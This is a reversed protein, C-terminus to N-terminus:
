DAVLLIAYSYFAEVTVFKQLSNKRLFGVVTKIAFNGRLCVGHVGSDMSWHYIKPIKSCLHPVRFYKSSRFFYEHHMRTCFYILIAIEFPRMLGSGHFRWCHYNELIGFMYDHAENLPERCDFKLIVALYQWKLTLYSLRRVSEFMRSIHHQSMEDSSSNNLASVTSIYRHINWLYYTYIHCVLVRYGGSGLIRCIAHMGSFNNILEDLDLTAYIGLLSLWERSWHHNITLQIRSFRYWHVTFSFCLRCVIFSNIFRSQLIVDM